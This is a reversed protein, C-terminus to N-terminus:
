RFDSVLKEPNSKCFKGFAINVDAVEKGLGAAFAKLYFTLNMVLLVDKVHASGASIESAADIATSCTTSTFLQHMVDGVEKTTTEVGEAFSSNTM